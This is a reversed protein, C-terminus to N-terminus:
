ALSIAGPRALSEAFGSGVPDVLRLAVIPLTTTAQRAARVSPTGSTAILDVNRDLLLAAVSPYGDCRDVARRM